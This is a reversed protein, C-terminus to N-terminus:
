VFKRLSPSVEPHFWAASIVTISNRVILGPHFYGCLDSPVFRLQLCFHQKHCAM